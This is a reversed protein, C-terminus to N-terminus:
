HHLGHTRIGIWRSFVPECLWHKKMSDVFFNGTFREKMRSLKAIIGKQDFNQTGYKKLTGIQRYIVSSFHILKQFSLNLITYRILKQTVIEKFM